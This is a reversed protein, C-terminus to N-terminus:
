KSTVKSFIRKFTEPNQHAIESLMKRNVIIHSTNLKNQFISFTTGAERLAANLRVTWLRRFDNKKDRRHAFAYAGAHRLADKAARVTKSRAYRFGKADKLINKRKKNAMIGGKVRSM